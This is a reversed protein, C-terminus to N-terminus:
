PRRLRGIDGLLQDLSRVAEESNRVRHLVERSFRIRGEVQRTAHQFDAGPRAPRAGGLAAPQVHEGKSDRPPAVENAATATYPRREHSRHGFQDRRPGARELGEEHPFLRPNNAPGACAGDIRSASAAM